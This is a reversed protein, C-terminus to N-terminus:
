HGTPITPKLWWVGLATGLITTAIIYPLWSRTSAIPTTRNHESVACRITEYNIVMEYQEETESHSKNIFQVFTIGGYCIRIRSLSAVIFRNYNELLTNILPLIWDIEVSKAVRNEKLMRNFHVQMDARSSYSYENLAISATRSKSLVLENEIIHAITQPDTDRLFRCVDKKTTYSNM